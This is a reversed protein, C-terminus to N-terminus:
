KIIKTESIEPIDKKHKKALKKSWKGFFDWFEELDSTDLKVISESLENLFTQCVDALATKVDILHVARLEGTIVEMKKIDDTSLFSFGGNADLLAVTNGKYDKLNITQM